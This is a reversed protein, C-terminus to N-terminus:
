EYRLSEALPLRAAMRGSLWCFAPVLVLAVAGVYGALAPPMVYPMTTGTVGIAGRVLGASGVLGLVVGLATAVVGLLMGEAAVMRGVRAGEAGVARLVALERRREDIGLVVGNGISFAGVLLGLFVLGMTLSLSDDVMEQMRRRFAAGEFVQLHMDRGWRREIEQRVASLSAGPELVVAFSDATADKWHREYLGRDIYAVGLDPSADNVVALVPFATVGDDSMLLLRGGVGIGTYNSALRSIAVGAGRRLQEYLAPPRLGDVVDLATFAEAEAWDFAILWMMPGRRGDARMTRVMAFREPGALAVGPVSELQARFEKPLPVDAGVGAWSTTVLLDWRIAKDAWEMLGAKFSAAYVHMAVMFGVSLLLGAATASARDRDRLVRTFFLRFLGPRATGLRRQLSRAAAGLAAPLLAALGAAALTFALGNLLVLGVHSRLSPGIWALAGATAAGLGTLGWGRWLEGGDDAENVGDQVGPAAPRISEAPQLEGLERAAAHAAVLAAGMGSGVAMALGAATLPTQTASFRYIALVNTTLVSALGRALLNGLVVGAVTGLAGLVAAEALVVRHIQRQPAGLARLIGLDTRRERINRRMNTFVMFAGIVGGIIAALWLTDMIGQLMQNAERGRQIPSGVLVGRYGAAELRSAVARALDDPPQLAAPVIDIQDIRNGKLFLAQAAALPIVAFTGANALGVGEPALLGSVTFPRAGTVTLLDVKDGVELGLRRAALRSLAIERAEPDSLGPLVGEALAYPRVQPDVAPDVGYVTLIQEGAPAVLLAHVRVVPVAVRVGPTERVVRLADVPFGAPSDATVQLEARGALDSLLGTYSREISATLVGVAMVLAVGLAIAALSLATRGPRNAWQRLSYLRVLRWTSVLAPLAMGQRGM